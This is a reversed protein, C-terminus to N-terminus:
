TDSFSCKRKCYDIHKKSTRGGQGRGVPLPPNPPAFGGGHLRRRVFIPFKDPYGEVGPGLYSRTRFDRERNELMGLCLFSLASVVVDHKLMKLALASIPGWRAGSHVKAQSRQLRPKAKAKAQSAKAKTEAVAAAAVAAAFKAM